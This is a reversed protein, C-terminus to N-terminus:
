LDYTLKYCMEVIKSGADPNGLRKSEVEMEKLRKRDRMLSIVGEALLEGTLYSDKIVMAAGKEEMYRANIEQHNNAAYPFPILIACRGCATLEAITTAGARCVVLDAKRYNDAMNFIFPRIDASIDRKSYEGKVFPFDEEGTQHIIHIEDKIDSFIDLTDVMALNIKHSGQSGGFVLLTFRDGRKKEIDKDTENSTFSRIPDSDLNYFESRVPNGTLSIKKKPFYIESGQFSIAIKDVFRGLIRNTIGPFLNQEQIVSSIGLLWSALILPGAVYGGVGIVIDPKYGKLILLSQVTGIPLILLSIVTRLSFRGKLGGVSISKLNFGEKPIIDREIGRETGVFLISTNPDRKLFERAISIGPYIHGGTGGGAIVVKM